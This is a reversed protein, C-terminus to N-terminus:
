DLIDGSTLSIDAPFEDSGFSYFTKEIVVYESLEPMVTDESVDPMEIVIDESLEPKQVPKQDVPAFRIIMIGDTLIRYSTISYPYGTVFFGFCDYDADFYVGNDIEAVSFFSDGISVDSFASEDLKESVFYIEGKREWHEYKGAKDVGDKKTFYKIERQFVVYALTTKQDETELRYVVCVTDDDISKISEIPFYANYGDLTNSISSADVIVNRAAFVLSFMRNDYVTLEEASANSHRTLDKKLTGAKNWYSYEDIRESWSKEESHDFGASCGSLMACLVSFLLIWAICLYIKKM